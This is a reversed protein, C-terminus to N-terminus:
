LNGNKPSKLCLEFRAPREHEGGLLSLGEQRVQRERGALGVRALLERGQEPSVHLIGLGPAVQAVGERSDALEQGWAGPGAEDEVARAHGQVGRDDLHVHRAELPQDGIAAGLRELLDGAEVAAVEQGPQRQGLARELFPERGLPLAQVLQGDLGQPAQEGMLLLGGGGLRGDLGAEAEEREVGQLLGDVARDHAEIGPEPAPLGREALVLEAHVRELALEARRGLRFGGLQVLLDQARTRGTGRPDLYGARRVSVGRWARDRIQRGGRGHRRRLGWRRRVEWRRGRIQDAARSRERLHRLHQSSVPEDRQDAGAADALRPQAQLDRPLLERAEGVPHPDGLERRERIGPQHRDGDRDREPEREGGGRLRGLPHRRREAPPAEQEDEVIALVHDLRRRVHGLRHQAGIRM